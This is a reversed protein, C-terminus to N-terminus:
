NGAVIGSEGDISLEEITWKRRDFKLKYHIQDGHYYFQDQKAFEIAQEKTEARIILLGTEDPYAEPWEIKWFKM